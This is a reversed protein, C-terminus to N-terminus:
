RDMSHERLSFALSYLLKPLYWRQLPIDVNATTHHGTVPPPMLPARHLKGRIRIRKEDVTWLRQERPRALRSHVDMRSEDQGPVAHHRQHTRTDLLCNHEANIQRDLAQSSEGQIFSQRIRQRPDTGHPAM